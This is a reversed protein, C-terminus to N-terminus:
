LCKEQKEIEFYSRNCDEGSAGSSEIESCDGETILKCSKGFCNLYKDSDVAKIYVFEDTRVRSTKGTSYIELHHQTCIDRTHNTVESTPNRDCETLKCEDRGCDLWHGGRHTYQLAIKMGNKIFPNRRKQTMFVKFWKGCSVTTTAAFPNDEDEVSCNGRDCNTTCTIPDKGNEDIVRLSIIDEEAIGKKCPPPPTTPTPTTITTSTSSTTTTPVPTPCPDPGMRSLEEECRYMTNIRKIDKYSLGNRQGIKKICPPITIDDAVMITKLGKTKAFANTPYHMISSYDYGITPTNPHEYLDFNHEYGVEINEWIIKIYNDRNYRTHEHWLGIAHGLEHIAHGIRKCQSTISVEQMMGLRGIYSSCGLKDTLNLFAVENNVAPEFKLCTYKHLENIADSFISRLDQDIDRDFKYHVIKDNWLDGSIMEPLIEDIIDGSGLDLESDQMIMRKEIKNDDTLRLNINIDGEFMEGEEGGRRVKRETNLVKGRRLSLSNTLLCISLLVTCTYKWNSRHM